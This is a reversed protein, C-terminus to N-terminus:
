RLLLWQKRSALTMPRADANYGDASLMWCPSRPLIGSNIEVRTDAAGDSIRKRIRQRSWLTRNLFHGMESISLLNAGEITQSGTSESEYILGIKENFHGKLYDAATKPPPPDCNLNVIAGILLLVIVSM